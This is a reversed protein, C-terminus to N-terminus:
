PKALRSEIQSRVARLKDADPANPVAALYAELEAVADKLREEKLYLNALHVRARAAGTPDLALAKQLSARAAERRDLALSAVGLFLYSSSVGPNATVAAELDAAAEAFRGQQLNCIGSGRLAPEYHENLTRARTFDQSAEAFDGRGIRLHGREAFAQFYQPFLEISRDFSEFAKDIQQNARFRLGQEFAKQAAKPVHQAAEAISVTSGKNEKAATVDIKNRLNLHAIFRNGSRSTDVEVPDIYLAPDTPSTATLYYRGRPLDRLEFRGMDDAFSRRDLGQQSTVRILARPAPKGDPLRVTGMIVFPGGSQAVLFAALGLVAVASLPLIGARIRHRLM